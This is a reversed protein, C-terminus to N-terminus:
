TASSMKAVNRVLPIGDSSTGAKPLPAPSEVRMPEAQEAACPERKRGGREKEPKEDPQAAIEAVRRTALLPKGGERENCADHHHGVRQPRGAISM